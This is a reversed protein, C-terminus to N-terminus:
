CIKMIWALLLRQYSNFYRSFTGPTNEKRQRPMHAKEPWLLENSFSENQNQVESIWCRAVEHLLKMYKIKQEETNKHVFICHFRVTEGIYEALQTEESSLLLLSIFVLYICCYCNILLELWSLMNRVITGGMKLLVLSQTVAQPIISNGTAPLKSASNRRKWAVPRCCWRHM